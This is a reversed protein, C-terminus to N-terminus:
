PPALGPDPPLRLDLPSVGPVEAVGLGAALSGTLVSLRLLAQRLRWATEVQRQETNFRRDRQDILQLLSRRGAQYQLDSARVTAELHERQRGVAPLAQASQLAQQRVVGLEGRVAQESRWAQSQAAEARARAEERRATGGGGLPVEYSVALTWGRRSQTSEVPATRDSLTKSLTLDAKPLYEPAILPVRARAAERRVAAAQAGANGRLALAWWEDLPADPALGLGPPWPTAGPPTDEARLAGAQGTLVGLQAQAALLDAQSGAVSLQADILSSQALDGDSSPSKGAAVQRGVREVLDALEAHRRRATQLLDQQRQLEIYAKAVRECADELAQRADAQVAQLELMAADLQTKDAGGNYVNWRVFGETSRLHRDFPTGSEQTVRRGQEYQVGASPFFRSRLQDVQAQAARVAARASQLDGDRQLALQLADAFRLLTTAEGAPTASAPPATPAIPAPAVVAAGAAACFVAASVAAMLTLAWPALVRAAEPTRRRPRPPRQHLSSTM